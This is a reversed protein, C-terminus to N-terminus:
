GRKQRKNGAGRRAQAAEFSAITGPAYLALLGPIGLLLGSISLCMLICFTRGLVLGWVRRKILGIAVAQFGAAIVLFIVLCAIGFGTNFAASGRQPGVEATLFMVGLGIGTFV